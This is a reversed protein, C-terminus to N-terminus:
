CSAAQSLQSVGLLNATGVEPHTQSPLKRLSRGQTHAVGDWLSPSWFSYLPSQSLLDGCTERRRRGGEQAEAPSPSVGDRGAM